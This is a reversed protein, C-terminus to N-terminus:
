NSRTLTIIEYYKGAEGLAKIYGRADRKRHWCKFYLIEEVGTGVIRTTMAALNYWRDASGKHKVMYMKM